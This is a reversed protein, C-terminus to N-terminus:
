FFTHSLSRVYITVYLIAIPKECCLGSGQIEVSIYIQSFFGKSCRKVEDKTENKKQKM